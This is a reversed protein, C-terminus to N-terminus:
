RYRSKAEIFKLFFAKHVERLAEFIKRHVSIESM